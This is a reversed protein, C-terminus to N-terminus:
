MVWPAIKYGLTHVIYSEVLALRFDWVTLHHVEWVANPTLISLTKPTVTSVLLWCLIGFLLSPQICNLADVALGSHFLPVSSSIFTRWYSLSCVPRVESHMESTMSGNALCCNSIAILPIVHFLAAFCAAVLCTMCGGGCGALVITGFVAEGLLENSCYVRSLRSASTFAWDLGKSSAAMTTSSGAFSTAPELFCGSSISTM